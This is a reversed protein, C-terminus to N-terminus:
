AISVVHKKKKKTPPSNFKLFNNENSSLLIFVFCFKAAVRISGYYDAKM